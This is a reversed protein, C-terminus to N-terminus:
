TSGPADPAILAYLKVDHWEDRINLRQRLIGEYEAGSKAAVKASAKNGAAAIIELRRLSTNAFAWQTLQTVAATAHGQGQASTRMWYGLNAFQHETNIQNLGCGGLFAGDGGKIVFQYETGTAFMRVQRAVWWKADNISYDMHCWPLWPSVEKISERVAEYLGDADNRQYPRIRISDM